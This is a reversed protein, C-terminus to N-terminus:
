AAQNSGSHRHPPDRRAALWRVALITTAVAVATISTATVLLAWPLAPKLGISLALVGYEVPVLAWLLAGGGVFLVPLAARSAPLLPPVRRFWQRWKWANGFILAGWFLLRGAAPLAATELPAVMAAALSAFGLLALVPLAPISLDPDPSAM